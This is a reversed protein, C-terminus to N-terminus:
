PVRCPSGTRTPDPPVSWELVTFAGLGDPELLAEAERVRSRATLAALDAVHARESWVRRGEEVLEDIGHFLLFQRQSRLADPERVAALQDVAVESTIDQSGPDVLPHTGKDHGRYTRLWSRWPRCALDGTTSAYDIVVVRGRDLLALADRLWAAAGSQVPVRAGLAADPPLGAPASTAPLLVEGFRGGDATVMATRWGDDHVLVDFPLNDLLENAIVVGTFPGAPLEALSIALPGRGAM